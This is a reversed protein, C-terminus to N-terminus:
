DHQMYRQQDDDFGNHKADNIGNNDLRYCFGNM